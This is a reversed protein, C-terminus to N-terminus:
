EREYQEAGIEDRVPRPFKLYYWYTDGYKPFLKKRADEMNNKYLLFESQFLKFREIINQDFTFREMDIPSEESNFSYVIFGEFILKPLHTYGFFELGTLGTGFEDMNNDLLSSILMYNFAMKNVNSEGTLLYLSLTIPTKSVIADPVQIKRYHALEPDSNILSTDNVFKQYREVWKKTFLSHDLLNLIKRAEKICGIALYAKALNKLVHPNAGYVNTAETGWVISQSLAGLELDVEQSPVIEDFGTLTTAMLGKSAMDQNYKFLDDFIRGTFYLAMNVYMIESRDFFDSYKSLELVKDWEKNRGYHQVSLKIKQNKDFTFYCVAITLLPIAFFVTNRKFNLFPRKGETDNQSQIFLDPIAYFVFVLPISLYLLYPLWWLVYINHIAKFEKFVDSYAIFYFHNFVLTVALTELLIALSNLRKGKSLLETLVALLSFLYVVKISAVFYLFGLLVPYLLFKYVAKGKSYGLYILSISLTILIELDFRLSHNYDNHMAILIIVPVFPVVLNCKTKEVLSYVLWYISYLIATLIISAIVPFNYFQIILRSLYETPNGPFDFYKKFFYIDTFFERYNKILYLSPNVVFLYYFFCGVFFLHILLLIYKEIATSLYKM